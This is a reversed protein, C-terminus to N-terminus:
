SSETENLSAVQEEFCPGYKWEITGERMKNMVREKRPSKKQKTAGEEEEGQDNRGRRRPRKEERTRQGTDTTGERKAQDSRGKKKARCGVEQRTDQMVIPEPTFQQTYYKEEGVVDAM